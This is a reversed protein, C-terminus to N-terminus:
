IIYTAVPIAKTGSPRHLDYGPVSHRYRNLTMDRDDEDKM